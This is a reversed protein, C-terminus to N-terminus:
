RVNAFSCLIIIKCLLYQGFLAMKEQMAKSSTMPSAHAEVAWVASGEAVSSQAITFM